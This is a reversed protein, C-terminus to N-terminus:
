FLRDCFDAPIGHVLRLEKPDERHLNKWSRSLVDWCLEMLKPVQFPLRYRYVKHSRRGDLHVGGYLYMHMSPSIAVRHFYVPKPLRTSLKRWTFTNLSFHWIDDLIDTERVDPGYHQGGCIYVDRYVQVLGFSSRPKPTGFQPDPHTTYKTWANRAYSYGYIIDVPQAKRLRGGGFIYFSHADKVIEQKYRGKPVEGSPVLVEWILTRLNLRHMDAVAENYFGIAGGFTYVYDGHFIISQGYARPPLNDGTDQNNFVNPNTEMVDWFAGSGDPKVHAIDCVKLTNSIIHGFPYSTGGFVYISTGRMVMSSSACTNPCGAAEIKSWQRTAFNFKWLEELVTPRGQQNLVRGLPNYGGLIYLNSEDSVMSHGSRGTPQLDLLVRAGERPYILEFESRGTNVDLSSM